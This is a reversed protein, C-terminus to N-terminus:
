PDSQGREGGHRTEVSLIALVDFSVAYCLRRRSRMQIRGMGARAEEREDPLRADRSVADADVEAEAETPAPAGAPAPAPMPEAIWDGACLEGPVGAEGLTRSAAGLRVLPAGPVPVPLMAGGGTGADPFVFTEFM